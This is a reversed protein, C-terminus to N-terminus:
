KKEPISISSLKDKNNIIAFLFLLAFAALGGHSLLVTIFDSLVLNLSIISLLGIAAPVVSKSCKRIVLVSGIDILIVALISIVFGLFGLYAPYALLFSTPSTSTSTKDGNSFISGSRKYVLVPMNKTENTTYKSFPMAAFGPRGDQEVHLYHWSAVQIPIVFARYIIANIYRSSGSNSESRWGEPPPPSLKSNKEKSLLEQYLTDLRRKSLGLSGDRLYASEILEFGLEVSDLQRVCHGFKYAHTSGLSREKIGEFALLATFFLAISCFIRIVRSIMRSSFFFNVCIIMVLTPLLLGKAGSLMCLLITVLFLIFYLIALHFKGSIIKQLFVVSLLGCAVPAFTNTVAGFSATAIFSNVFKISVERALLTVEPDFIIAYIATCYLPIFLLYIASFIYPLIVSLGLYSKEVKSIGDFSVDFFFTKTLIIFFLLAIVSTNIYLAFEWHNSIGSEIHNSLMFLPLQFFVLVFISFIFPIRFCLRKEKLFIYLCLSISILCGLLNIVLFLNTDPISLELPKLLPNM